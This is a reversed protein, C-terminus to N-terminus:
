ASSPCPCAMRKICCTHITGPAYVFVSSRDVEGTMWHQLRAEVISEAVPGSPGLPAIWRVEHVKPAATAKGGPGVDRPDEQLRPKAPFAGQACVRPWNGDRASRSTTSCYPEDQLRGISGSLMWARAQM